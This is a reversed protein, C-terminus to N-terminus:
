WRPQYALQKPATDFQSTILSRMEKLTWPTTKSCHRVSQYDFASGINARQLFTKSCHRVSQYDFRPTGLLVLDDTKSCHRVSQYDFESRGRFRQFLQKPATDFQSTILGHVPEPVLVRPKPATDFQSTILCSALHIAQLPRKPATDFQSTILCRM